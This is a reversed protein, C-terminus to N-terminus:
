CGKRFGGELTWVLTRRDGDSVVVQPCQHICRCFAEVAQDLNVSQRIYDNSGDERYRCVSFRGDEM